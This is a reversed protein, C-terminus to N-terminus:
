KCSLLPSVSMSFLSTSVTPSLSPPIFQFLLVSVSGHTFYTTPIQQILCPAWVWHETIVLLLTPQHPLHSPPELPLPCTCVEPQNMNIHPLFRVCYQLAIIRWMFISFLIKLFYPFLQFYTISANYNM